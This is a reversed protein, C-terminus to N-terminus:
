GSGCAGGGRGCLVQKFKACYFMPGIFVGISPCALLVEVMNCWVRDVRSSTLLPALFFVPLYAFVAPVIVLLVNKLARRKQPLASSHAPGQQGLSWALGVLCYLMVAFLVCVLVSVPMAIKQLGKFVYVDEGTTMVFILTVTWVAASIAIKYGWKRARLYVLPRAVAAYRELCMVALLMPCGTMLLNYAGEEVAKTWRPNVSTVNENILTDNKQAVYFVRIAIGVPAVVIHLLQMVLLNVGVVKAPSLNKSEKIFLWALPLNAALGVFLMLVQISTWLKDYILGNCNAVM